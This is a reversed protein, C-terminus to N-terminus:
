PMLVVVERLRSTDAAMKVRAETYLGFGVSRSDVITGVPIGPPFVGGLGSTQVTQGPRLASQRPLNTLDVLRHDLVSTSFATIVGNEGAERVLVAVRCKPDGVLWVQTRTHGVEGTRGVLGGPTLVPLDPRLGDRAGLDIWVTRWWDEPDRAIVRAVKHKWPTQRQWAVLERLRENERLAEAQQTARLRLELNERRLASLENLLARRSATLDSAREALTQGSGALGFLPVFLGSVTLRVRRSAQEPLNLLALAVLLVVAFGIWYPKNLM